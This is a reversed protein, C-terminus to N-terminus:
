RVGDVLVVRSRGRALSVGAVVLAVMCLVRGLPLLASAYFWFVSLISLVAPVAGIWAMVRVPRTWGALRTLTFVFVGLAVVHVVGGAIFSVGRLTVVADVSMGGAAVGFTIALAAAVAMGAVALWGSLLALRRVPADTGRGAVRTVTTAIFVGLGAVSLAQLSGTLISAVGNAVLYDYVEGAPAGPLPRSGSQVAGTAFDVALYLVLFATAGFLPALVRTRTPAQADTVIDM